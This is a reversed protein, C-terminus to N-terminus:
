KWAKCTFHNCLTFIDINKLSYIKNTGGLVMFHDFIWCQDLKDFSTKLLRLASMGKKAAKQCHYTPKLTNSIYVDVDKEVSTEEVKYTGSDDQKM